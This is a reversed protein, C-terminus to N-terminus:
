SSLVAFDHAPHWIDEGRCDGARDLLALVVAV